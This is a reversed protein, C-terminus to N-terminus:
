KGKKLRVVAHSNAPLFFIYNMYFINKHGKKLILTQEQKSKWQPIPNVNQFM